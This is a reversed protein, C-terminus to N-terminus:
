RSPLTAVFCAGKGPARLLLNGGHARAVQTALYLGLGTGGTDRTRSPDGRYFPEGIRGAQEAGIGPGHDRVEISLGPGTTDFTVEVPGDAPASYRLANGVLNKLMLIVRAEDLRAEDTPGAFRIVIRDRERTFYGEVLRDALARLSVESVALVAHTGSLREAELLTEVIRDMEDVDGRLGRRQTDDDLFELQLRLRSLPSKLEHSIGLLLQRKADLMRQVDDAMHNIDGALEGLEDNRSAPIRHAFDGGGFRAAGTRIEGIPRFLWRVALYALLILMLAFAIIIPILPPRSPQTAIKPTAVIIDYAGEQLRLFSHRDAEAFEVGKLERLWADPSESFYKSPGFQLESQAPFSPDSAWDVGPGVIRIDVPVKETIALARDIRPPDGIDRRVYDVHLALHGSILERLDDAGYIWRVGIVIGQAFLLALLLFIALLRLSLSYSFFRIM